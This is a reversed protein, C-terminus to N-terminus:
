GKEGDFSDDEGSDQTKAATNFPTEEDDGDEEGYVHDMDPVDMNLLMNLDKEDVVQSYAEYHHTASNRDIVIYLHLSEVDDTNINQPEIKFAYECDVISPPLLKGTNMQTEAAEKDPGNIEQEVELVPLTIGFLDLAARISQVVLSSTKFPRSCIQELLDNLKKVDPHDNYIIPKVQTTM